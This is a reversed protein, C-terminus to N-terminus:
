DWRSKGNEQQTYPDSNVTKIQRQLWDDYNLNMYILYGGCFTIACLGLGM